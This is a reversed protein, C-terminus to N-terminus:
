RFSSPLLSRNPIHKTCYSLLNFPLASDAWETCTTSNLENLFAESGVGLDNYFSMRQQFYSNSNYVAMLETANARDGKSWQWHLYEHAITSYKNPERQWVSTLYVTMHDDFTFACGRLTPSPPCGTDDSLKVEIQAINTIGLDRFMQDVEPVRPYTPLIKVQTAQPALVGQHQLNYQAAAVLLGFAIVSFFTLWKLTRIIFKM